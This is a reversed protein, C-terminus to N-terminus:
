VNHAEMISDAQQAETVLVALDPLDSDWEILTPKSGFLRIANQYLSWVASCVPQNHTDILVEIDTEHNVLNAVYNVTHGALHIEGVREAPIKQLYQLADWGHNQCSVYVNNVDLLIGCGSRQALAALFDAEGYTSSQFEVYSSPNEILVQRGLFEQVQTIREVLHDLTAQTYPLPLLDNLYQGGFSSWSLHESVLGPEIFDILARLQQLHGQDLADASGLSMGVGHLSIPYCARIKELYHRPAGGKGFYNESHVELWAVNPRHELVDVYHPSRLGIGAGAPIAASAGSQDHEHAM